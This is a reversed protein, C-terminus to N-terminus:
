ARATTQTICYRIRDAAARNVSVYRLGMRIMLTLYEPDSGAEGCVSLKVGAERFTRIVHAIAREVAPAFPTQEVGTGTNGRDAALIYQTLDNTGISAFDVAAALEDAMLVASPTEIMVGIRIEDSIDLGERRCRRSEDDWIARASRYEEATNIMPFMVSFPRGKSARLLARIQTRFLDEHALCLRIGRCGLFPNDEKPLDLYPIQKDGGIDLTRIILDKGELADFVKGYEEAQEEERPCVARDLFLFETRYLGVGFLPTLNLGDLDSSKGINVSVHVTEGDKTVAESDPLTRLMAAFDQEECIQEAAKSLAEEDPEVIVEGTNGDVIITVGAPIEGAQDIGTVAPIGLTRALIVVHATSGGQHTILAALRDQDMAMTDTPSLSDAAVAVPGDGEPFRVSTCVGSLKQLLMTKLNRIDDARQRMYEDKAREFIGATQELAQEVAETEDMGGEILSRIPDTLYPDALLAAYAEFIAASEEGLSHLTKERSLDVQEICALLAQEFNDLADKGSAHVGEPKLGPFDAGREVVATVAIATGASAPVGHYRKM